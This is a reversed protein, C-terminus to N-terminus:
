ISQPFHRKKIAHTKLDTLYDTAKARYQFM